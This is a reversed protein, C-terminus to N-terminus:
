CPNSAPTSADGGIPILFRAKYEVAVDPELVVARHVQDAVEVYTDGPGYITSVCGTKEDYKTLEVHGREVISFLPGPHTHWGGNGISNENPSTVLRQIAFDARVSSRMMLEPAQNIFFPDLPFRVNFPVLMPDTVVVNSPAAPVAARPTPSTTDDNCAALFAGACAVALTNRITNGQMNVEGTPTIIRRLGIAAKEEAALDDKYTRNSGAM